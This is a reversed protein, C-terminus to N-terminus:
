AGRPSSFRRRESRSPPGGHPLCEAGRDHLPGHSRHRLERRPDFFVPSFFPLVERRQPQTAATCPFCFISFFVFGGLSPVRAQVSSPYSYCKRVDAAHDGKVYLKEINRALIKNEGDSLHAIWKSVLELLSSSARQGTSFISIWIEPVCWLLAAVFMSVGFTKGWRRPCVVLVEFRVESFGYRALIRERDNEFSESGYIHPLCACFFQRHFHKQGPTRTVGLNDLTELLMDAAQDGRNRKQSRVQTVAQTNEVCERMAHESRSAHRLHRTFRRALPEYDIVSLNMAGVCMLPEPLAYICRATDRVWELLLPRPRFRRRRWVVLM